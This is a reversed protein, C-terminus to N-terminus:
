LNFGPPAHYVDIQRGAEQRGLVRQRVHSLLAPAADDVHGRYNNV